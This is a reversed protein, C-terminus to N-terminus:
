KQIRKVSLIGVPPTLNQGQVPQQQIKAVVDLGAIVVGFAAAGQADDFRLGGFDLSPQDDLLVFFDSTATDPGGRAMSVVGRVHKMGTVSTRELPIAPFGQGKKDPSLGGQILEMAPRNPPAPKYNDPRTARHFRGGDYLGADVYKLFNASTVPARKVDVAIDISGFQTQVRVLVAAVSADAQRSSTAKTSVIVAPGGVPAVSGLEMVMDVRIASGDRVIVGARVARKFGPSQFSVSYRGDPVSAFRYTGDAGTKTSQPTQLQPGALSVEIDALAQGSGYVVRGAVGQAAPTQGVLLVGILLANLVIFM